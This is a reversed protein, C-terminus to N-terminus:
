DIVVVRRIETLLAAARDVDAEVVKEIAESELDPLPHEVANAARDKLDQLLAEGTIKRVKADVIDASDNHWQARVKSALAACDLVRKLIVTGSILLGAITIPNVTAIIELPSNYSVRVVQHPRGLVPRSFSIKAELKDAHYLQNRIATFQPADMEVVTLLSQVWHLRSAVQHLTYPQAPDHLVFGIEVQTDVVPPTHTSTTLTPAGGDTPTAACCALSALRNM